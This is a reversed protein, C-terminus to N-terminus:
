RTLVSWPDGSADALGVDAIFDFPIAWAGEAYNKGLRIYREPQNTSLIEITVDQDDESVHLVRALLAEGETSTLRVVKGEFARL